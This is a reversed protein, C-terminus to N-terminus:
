IPTEACHEDEATAEIRAGPGIVVVYILIFTFWSLEASRSCSTIVADM